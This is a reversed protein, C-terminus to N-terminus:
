PKGATAKVVASARQSENASTDIASVAYLNEKRGKADAWATDKVPTSTLRVFQAGQWAARYVIYGAIDGSAPGDGSAPAKWTLSVGKQTLEAVLGTPPGPPISSTVTIVAEPSPASELGAHSVELVRYTYTGGKAASSDEWKTTGAPLETV